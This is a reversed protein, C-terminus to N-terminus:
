QTAEKKDTTKDTQPPTLCEVFVIRLALMCVLPFSDGLEESWRLCISDIEDTDGAHPTLTRLLDGGLETAQEVSFRIPTPQDTM